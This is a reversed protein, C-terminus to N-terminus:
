TTIPLRGALRERIQERIRRVLVRWRYRTPWHADRAANRRAGRYTWAPRPTGTKGVHEGDPRVGWFKLFM